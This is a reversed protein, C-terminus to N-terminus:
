HVGPVFEIDALGRLYPLDSTNNQDPFAVTGSKYFPADIVVNGATIPYISSTPSPKKFLQFYPKPTGGSASNVSVMCVDLDSIAVSTISVYTFDSPNSVNVSAQALQNHSVFDWLTVTYTGPSPMRCGLKTISGNSTTHFKLGYNAQVYNFEYITDAPSKRDVIAKVPTKSVSNQQENHKEKKCAAILLLLSAAALIKRTTKM